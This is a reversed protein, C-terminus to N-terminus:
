NSGESAVQLLNIKQITKRYLLTLSVWLQLINTDALSHGLNHSKGRDTQGDTYTHVDTLVHVALEWRGSRRPVRCVCEWSVMLQVEAGFRECRGVIAGGPPLAKCFM